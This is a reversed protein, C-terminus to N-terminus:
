ATERHSQARFLFRSGEGVKPCPYLPRLGGDGKHQVTLHKGFVQGGAALISGPQFAGCLGVAQKQFLNQDQRAVIGLIIKQQFLLRTM